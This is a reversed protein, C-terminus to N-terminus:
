KRCQPCLGILDLRCGIIRCGDIDGRVDPLTVASGLDVDRVAGCSICRMHHHIEANGDFRKLTGPVEIKQILASESLIELNRYITGLSIKPLRKRVIRYLDDASPHTKLKKLEELIIKRQTTM